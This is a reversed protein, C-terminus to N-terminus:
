VHEPWTLKSFFYMGKCLNFIIRYFQVIICYAFTFTM